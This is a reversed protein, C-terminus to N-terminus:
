EVNTKPSVEKVGGAVRSVTFNFAGFTLGFRTRVRSQWGDPLREELLVTRLDDVRGGFITLMTSANSAGFMRHDFSTTFEPNTAKADAYRQSLSASLDKPTMLTNGEADKGSVNALLEEILPVAIKSQDPSHYVDERTLSGDHEIENHKDLDQLNFTDKSYNKKLYEASFNPVFLCFTPAFNYTTRIKHNMETFAINKGDRSIIGHNAMANLAPCSCRSDGEKGPIYEPWKGEFGPHGNPTVRGVPKNPLVLNLLTLLADWSFIYVNLVTQGVKHIVGM